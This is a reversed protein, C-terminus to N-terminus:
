YELRHRAILFDKEFAIGFVSYREVMLIFRWSRPM